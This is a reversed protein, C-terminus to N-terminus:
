KMELERAKKMWAEFDKLDKKLVGAVYEGMAVGKFVCYTRTLDIIGKEVAVTTLKIFFYYFRYLSLEANTRLTM